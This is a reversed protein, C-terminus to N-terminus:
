DSSSLSPHLPPCANQQEHQFWYLEEFVEVFHECLEATISEDLKIGSLNRALHALVYTMVSERIPAARGQHANLLIQKRMTTKILYIMAKIIQYWFLGLTIHQLFDRPTSISLSLELWSANGFSLKSFAEDWEGKKVRQNVEKTGSARTEWHWSLICCSM